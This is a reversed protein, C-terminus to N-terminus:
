FCDTDVCYLRVKQTRSNREPPLDTIKAVELFLVGALDSTGSFEYARQKAKKKLRALKLRRKRKAPTETTTTDEQEDSAHTDDDDDDDEDPDLSNERDLLTEDDPDIDTTSMGTLAQLVQQPRASTHLPDYLTFELLVEGTVM